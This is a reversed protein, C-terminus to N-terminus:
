PRSSLATKASAWGQTQDAVQASRPPGPTVRTPPGSATVPGTPTLYTLATPPVMGLREQATAVIRQPSELQAVELRLRVYQGQADDSQRQLRQLRFQGETLLVHVGALGFLMASAVVVGIATMLRARRRRSRPSRYGDPVVELPAPRGPGRGPRTPQPEGNVTLPGTPLVSM